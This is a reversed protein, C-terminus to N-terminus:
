GKIASFDIVNMQCALADYSLLKGALVEGIGTVIKVVEVAMLSGIVGPLVGMVGIPMNSEEAHEPFLDSYAPAGKYNFVGVQGNFESIAGNVFPKKFKECVTDLLYRSKFNDTAGVVIDYGSILVEAQQDDLYYPYSVIEVDSNLAKLKVVALDAKSQGVENESYLVQRQLNSVSVVDGDVIGIKGIGGGALYMLLPSGLGGAGVVLVKAEKLKLQGTQGIEPIILHRNYREKENNSLSM